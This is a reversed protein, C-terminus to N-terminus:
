CDYYRRDSKTKSPQILQAIQIEEQSLNEANEDGAARKRYISGSSRKKTMPSKSCAIQLSSTIAVQVTGNM